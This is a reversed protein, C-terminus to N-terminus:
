ASRDVLAVYSLVDKVQNASLDAVPVLRVPASSECDCPLGVTVRGRKLATTSGTGACPKPLAASISMGSKRARPHRAEGAPRQEHGLHSRLQRLNITMCSIAMSGPAALRRQRPTASTAPAAATQLM